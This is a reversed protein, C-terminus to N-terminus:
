RGVGGAPAPGMARSSMEGWIELAEDHGGMGMAEFAEAFSEGAGDEIGDQEGQEMGAM